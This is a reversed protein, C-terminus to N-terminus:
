VDFFLADGGGVVLVTEIITHLFAHLFFREGDGPSHQRLFKIQVRNGSDGAQRLFLYPRQLGPVARLQPPSCGCNRVLHFAGARETPTNEDHRGM